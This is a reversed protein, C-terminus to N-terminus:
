VLELFFKSTRNLISMNEMASRRKLRKEREKVLLKLDEGDLTGSGDKDLAHFQEHLKDLLEQDVKQMAVLMFEVFEAKSVEGNGDSDMIAFDSSSLGREMIAERADGLRQESVYVAISGLLYGFAGVLVPICFISAVKEIERDPVLDGYGITTSSIVGFYVTDIFTWGDDVGCLYALVSIAVLVPWSKRLGRCVDACTRYVRRKSCGANDQFSNESSTEDNGEDNQDFTSIVNATNQNVASEMAEMHAEVLREGIVGLAVGIIAIGALAYFCAFLRGGQSEPTLDGYGVTSLTVVSFYLSDVLSWGEFVCSYAIVGVLLFVAIMAICTFLSVQTFRSMFKDLREEGHEIEMVGKENTSSKLANKKKQDPPAREPSTKTASLRGDVLSEKFNSEM